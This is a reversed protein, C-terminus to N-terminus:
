KGRIDLSDQYITIDFKENLPFGNTYYGFEETITDSSNIHM